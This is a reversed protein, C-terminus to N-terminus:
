LTAEDLRSILNTGLRITIQKVMNPQYGKSTQETTITTPAAAAAAAAAAATTTTITITTTSPLCLLLPDQLFLVHSSSSLHTSPPFVSILIYHILSSSFIM